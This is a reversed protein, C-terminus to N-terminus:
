DPWCCRGEPDVWGGSRQAVSSGTWLLVLISCDPCVSPLSYLMCVTTGGALAARTTTGVVIYTKLENKGYLYYINRTERVLCDIM